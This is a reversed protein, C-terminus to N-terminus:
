RCTSSYNKDAGGPFYVLVLRHHSAMRDHTGTIPGLVCPGRLADLLCGSCEFDWDLLYRYVRLCLVELLRPIV